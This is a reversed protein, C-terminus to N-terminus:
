SNTTNLFSTLEDSRKYNATDSTNVIFELLAVSRKELAIDIM